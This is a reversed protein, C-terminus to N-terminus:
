PAFPQEPERRHHGHSEDRETGILHDVPGEHVQSRAGDSASYWGGTIKTMKVRTRATAAIMASMRSFYGGRDDVGPSRAAASRTLACAGAGDLVLTVIQRALRPTIPRGTILTRMIIPGVLVDAMVEVDVDSRIEGRAIGREILDFVVRRRGSVLGARVAEALEADRSMADVLGALIRANPENGRSRTLETLFRMLADRTTMDEPIRAAMPPKMHTLADVVLPIKSPWRRYVTTKGVGARAAVAEISLGGFGDEALLEMTAKLIARDAEPDRPRGPARTAPAESASVGLREAVTALEGDHRRVNLEIADAEAARNPLWILAVLAGLLAIGAGVVLGRDMANIFSSKAAATIAAGQTGGIKEGIALAAGVSNQAAAISSEPLGRLSSVIHTAYSSAFISGLIAVGLAGGIQRTTDNMASGVGAKALPLSGMISETAPVMATGMGLGLILLSIVVHGYGSAVSLTGM